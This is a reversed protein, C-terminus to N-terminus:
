KTFVKILVDAKVDGLSFGEFEKSILDREALRNINLKQIEFLYISSELKELFKLINPFPGASTIRFAMSPWRDKINKKASSPSIEISIQSDQSIKELFSIFGVPEEQKVLLTEIKELNPKIERYTKKFEELNKIEDELFVIKQEQSILEQSNNKIDRYLPNILFFILFIGLGSFIVLSLNVKNRLTM